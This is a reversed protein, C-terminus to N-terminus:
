GHHELSPDNSGGGEKLLMLDDGVQTNDPFPPVIELDLLSGASDVSGM